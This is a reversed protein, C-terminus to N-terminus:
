ADFFEERSSEFSRRLKSDDRPPSYAPPLILQSQTKVTPSPPLPMSIAQEMVKSELDPSYMIESRSIVPMSSRAARPPLPPRNLVNRRPPLPPPIISQQNQNQIDNNMELEELERNLEEEKIQYIREERSLIDENDLMEESEEKENDANNQKDVNNENEEEEDEKVDSLGLGLQRRAMLNVISPHKPPLPLSMIEERERREFELDHEDKYGQKEFKDLQEPTPPLRLTEDENLDLNTLVDDSIIAEYELSQGQALGTEAEYM